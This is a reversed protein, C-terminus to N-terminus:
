GALRDGTADAKSRASMLSKHRGYILGLADAKGRGAKGVFAKALKKAEPTKLRVDKNLKHFVLEFGRDDGLAEELMKLYSRLDSEDLKSPATQSPSPALAATAQFVFADIYEDKKNEVTNAFRRLDKADGAKAFKCASEVILRLLEAVPEIRTGGDGCQSVRNLVKCVDAVTADTRIALVTSICRLSSAKEAGCAKELIETQSYLWELLVSAKM